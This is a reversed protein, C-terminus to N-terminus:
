FPYATPDVLRAVADLIAGVDDHDFADYLYLEEGDQAYVCARGASPEFTVRVPWGEPTEGATVTDRYAAAGDGLRSALLSARFGPLGYVAPIV